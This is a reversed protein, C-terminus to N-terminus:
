QTHQKILTRKSKICGIQVIQVQSLLEGIMGNWEGTEQNRKGYNEDDVWKFTYNFEVFISYNFSVDIKLWIIFKIIIKQYVFRQDILLKRKNM